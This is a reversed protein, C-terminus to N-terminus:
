DNPRMVLECVHMRLCVHMCEDMRICMSACVRVHTCFYLMYLVSVCGRSGLNTSKGYFHHQGERRKPKGVSWSPGLPGWSRGLIAWSADLPPGFVAWSAGLVAWSPGLVAGLPALIAWCLQLSDFNFGLLGLTLFMSVCPLNNNKFPGPGESLGLM